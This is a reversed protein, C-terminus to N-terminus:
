PAVTIETVQLNGAGVATIIGLYDSMPGDYWTSKELRITFSGTTAGPGYKISITAASNNYFMVHRRLPNAALVTQAVASVVVTTVTAITPRVVAQTIQPNTETTAVPGIPAVQLVGSLKDILDDQWQGM